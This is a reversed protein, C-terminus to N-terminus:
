SSLLFHLTLFAPLAGGGHSGTQSAAARPHSRHTSPVPKNRPFSPVKKRQETIDLRATGTSAATHNEPTPPSDTAQSIPTKIETCYGYRENSTCGAEGKSGSDGRKEDLCCDGPQTDGPRM